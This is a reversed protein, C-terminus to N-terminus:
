SKASLFQIFTRPLKFEPIQESVLLLSFLHILTIYDLCKVVISMRTATGPLSYIIKGASENM